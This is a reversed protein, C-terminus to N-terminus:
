KRSFVALGHEKVIKAPMFRHNGMANRDHMTANEAQLRGTSVRWPVDRGDAADGWNCATSLRIHVRSCGNERIQLEPATLILM